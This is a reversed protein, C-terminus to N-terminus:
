KNLHLYLNFNVNTGKNVESDIMIKGNFLEVIEKCLNLGLGAGLNEVEESLIGQYYPNFINKLDSKSIGIGTDKVDVIFDLKNDKLLKVQTTVEIIGNNTFKNANGIINLFLQHIKINDTFVTYDDSIDNTIKFNNGKSEVYPKIANFIHDLENKLNFVKHKLEPKKDQDKTYELIQNAQLLLSNSTFQIANLSEKISSDQTSKIIKNTFITIINLPSRLEHSLMGLVRNKFNLNQEIQLNATKLKEEYDFAFRTLYLIAISILIMLVVLGIVSFNRISKNTSYQNKFNNELDSHFDNIAQEYNNLISNCYLILELNKKIFASESDKIFLLNKKINSFEDLYYNNTNKFANALQEEINGKTVKKGYKMTVIVNLKEKQVDVKGSIADGLRSFLGKRAVSDVLIYSEIDISNLVNKYNYQNVTIFDLDNKATPILSQSNLLSDIKYRLKEDNIESSNQTRVHNKFNANSDSFSQISDFSDIMQKLSSTYNQLSLDEKSIIFNQFNNQANIFELQALRSHLKMNKSKAIENEIKDLKAENFIENYFFIILLIQLFFASALLTYHVIKRYKFDLNKINYIKLRLINKILNYFIFKLVLM